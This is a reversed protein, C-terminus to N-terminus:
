YGYVSDILMSLSLHIIIIIIIIIILVFIFLATQYSSNKGTYNGGTFAVCKVKKDLM